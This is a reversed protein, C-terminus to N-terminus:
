NEIVPLYIDIISNSKNWRFRFDYLEYHLIHRKDNIQLQKEPIIRKYIDYITTKIKAMNGTHEFRAFLGESIEIAEFGSDVEDVPIAAMYLYKDKNKYTVGYKVWNGKVRQKDSKLLSNFKIWHNRIIDYNQIQSTTLETSLGVLNIREKKQLEFNM